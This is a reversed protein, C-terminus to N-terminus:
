GQRTPDQSLDAAARVERDVYAIRVDSPRALLEGIGEAYRTYEPTAYHARLTAEDRWRSHLVYEGPEGDLPAHAAAALCGDAGALAAAHEAVHIEADITLSM